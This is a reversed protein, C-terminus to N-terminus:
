VVLTLAISGLLVTEVPALGGVGADPTPFGPGVRDSSDWTGGGGDWLESLGM